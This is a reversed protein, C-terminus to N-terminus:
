CRDNNLRLSRLFPEGLYKLLAHFQQIYVNYLTHRDQSVAYENFNQGLQAAQAIAAIYMRSKARESNTYLADFYPFLRLSMQCRKKHRSSSHIAFIYLFFFIERHSKSIIWMIQKSIQSRLDLSRFINKPYSILQRLM